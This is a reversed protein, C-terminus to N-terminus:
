NETSNDALRQDFNAEVPVSSWRSIQMQQPNRLASNQSAASPTSDAAVAALAARDETVAGIEEALFGAPARLVAM